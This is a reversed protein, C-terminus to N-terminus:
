KFGMQNQMQALINKARNIQEQSFRGSYIIDNPNGSVTKKFQKFQEWFNPINNPTTNNPISNGNSGLSEFLNAM